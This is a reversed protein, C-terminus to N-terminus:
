VLTEVDHPKCTEILSAVVPTTSLEATPAQSSRM